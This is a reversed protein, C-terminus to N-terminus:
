GKLGESEVSIECIGTEKLRENRHASGTIPNITKTTNFIFTFIAM